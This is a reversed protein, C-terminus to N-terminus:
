LLASTARGGTRTRGEGKGDARGAFRAVGELTASEHCGAGAKGVCERVLKRRFDIAFCMLRVFSPVSLQAAGRLMGLELKHMAEDLSM